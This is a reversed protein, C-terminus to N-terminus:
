SYSFSYPLTRVCSFGGAVHRTWSPHRPHNHRRPAGLFFALPKRQGPFFSGTGKQLSGPPILPLSSSIGWPRCHFSESVPHLSAHRTPLPLHTLPWDARLVRSCGGLWLSTMDM